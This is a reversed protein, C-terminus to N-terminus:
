IEQFYFVSNKLIAQRWTMCNFFMCNSTLIPKLSSNQRTTTHVHLQLTRDSTMPPVDFAFVHKTTKNPRSSLARWDGLYLPYMMSDDYMTSFLVTRHSRVCRFLRRTATTSQNKTGTVQESRRNKPPLAEKFFALASHPDFVPAPQSVDATPRPTAKQSFRSLRNRM